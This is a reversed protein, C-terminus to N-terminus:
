AARVWRAVEKLSPKKGTAFIGVRYIKGSIWLMGFATGILLLFSAAIELNTASGLVARVPMVLPSTFPIFSGIRAMSSDANRLATNAMLFGIVLPLIAPFVLQQAEQLTTVIAGISAYITSYILFGGVFFLLFVIGVSLPVKPLANTMAEIQAAKEPGLQLLSAIAGAYTIALAVSVVWVLMQLFGAGGIGLVKGVVIEPARVSSLVVEVIKDRKEELVGNMMAAGYLAIVLYIAFGMLMAMIQAAAANGRMGGGTTKEAKFPVPKLAGEVKSPDIGENSLRTTQVVSQVTKELMSTLDDNTANKGYYNVTEGALVDAPIVMYGGLSDATVRKDLSDRVAKMDIPQEIRSLTFTVPKGMFGRAQKLETELHSGLKQPSEDIVVMTYEGGGGRTLIFVELAIFGAILLPGLLTMIIFTKGQVFELFERKMIIATKSM